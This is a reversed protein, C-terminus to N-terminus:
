MEAPSFEGEGMHAMMDRMMQSMMRPIAETALAVVLGGGIAGMVAELVYGRTNNM